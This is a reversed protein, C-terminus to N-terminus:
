VNSFYIKRDDNEIGSDPKRNGSEPNLPQVKLHLRVPEPLPRFKGM